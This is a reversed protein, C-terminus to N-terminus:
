FTQLFLDEDVILSKLEGVFLLTFAFVIFFELFQSIAKGLMGNFENVHQELNFLVGELDDLM